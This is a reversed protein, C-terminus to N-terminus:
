CFLMQIFHLLLSSWLPRSNETQGVLYGVLALIRRFAEHRFPVHIHWKKHSVHSSMWDLGSSYEKMTCPAARLIPGTREKKGLSDYFTCAKQGGKSSVRSDERM